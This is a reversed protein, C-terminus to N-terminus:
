QCEKFAERPYDITLGNGNAVEPRTIFYKVFIGCGIGNPRFLPPFVYGPLSWNPHFSHSLRLGWQLKSGFFSIFIILFHGDKL